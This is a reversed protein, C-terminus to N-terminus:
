PTSASWSSVAPATWHALAGDVHPVLAGRERCWRLYAVIAARQADSFGRAREEFWAPVGRGEAPPELQYVLNDLIVDVEVPARVCWTMVAPLYYRWAAASLLATERGALVDALGVETWDKGAYAASVEACECCHDNALAEPVPRPAGAFAREILAVVDRDDRAIV